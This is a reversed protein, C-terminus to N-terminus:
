KKLCFVAEEIERQKKPKSSKKHSLEMGTGGGDRDRRWVQGQVKRPGSLVTEHAASPCAILCLIWPDRHSGSWAVLWIQAETKGTKHCPVIIGVELSHKPTCQLSTFVTCGRSHRRVVKRITM